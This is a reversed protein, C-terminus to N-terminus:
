AGEKRASAAIPIRSEFAKAAEEHADAITECYSKYPETRHAKRCRTAARRHDAAYHKLSSVLWGISM